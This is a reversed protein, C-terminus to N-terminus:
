GHIKELEAIRDQIQAIRISLFAAEKKADVRRTLMSRYVKSFYMGLQPPVLGTNLITIPYYSTVDRDRLTFTGDCQYAVKKETSHLGGIGFTYRSSGIRLDIKEFETPEYIKGDYGVTFKATRVTELLQRLLPTQYEIFAPPVYNFKGPRIQPKAIRQGSLREVEARIVAEAIQADSKSRLDLGYQDSMHARLELQSKLDAKLAITTDLDNVHYSRVMEIEEDTLESHVDVPMEQIRHCHLRGGYMKLSPKQPCGPSVNMLDVHDVFSPPKDIGFRDYTKFAPLNESIITDCLSKLDDTDWGALAAMLVPMDFNGSNFGYVRFNRMVKAIGARDLKQGRLMEFRKWRGSEIDKFAAAFYNRFIELDFVAEKRPTTYKPM